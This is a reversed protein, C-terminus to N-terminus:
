LNYQSFVTVHIAHESTTRMMLAAVPRINCSQNSFASEHITLKMRIAIWSASRKHKILRHVQHSTTILIPSKCLDPSAQPINPLQVRPLSTPRQLVALCSDLTAQTQSLRLRQFQPYPLSQALHEQTGCQRLFHGLMSSEQSNMDLPTLFQKDPIHHKFYPKIHSGHAGACSLMIREDPSM